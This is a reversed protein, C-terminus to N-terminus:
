EENEFSFFNTEKILSKGRKKKMRKRATGEERERDRKM